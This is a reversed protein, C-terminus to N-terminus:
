PSSMESAKGAQKALGGLVMGKLATEAAQRALKTFNM